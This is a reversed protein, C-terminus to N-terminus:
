AWAAMASPRSKWAPTASNASRCTRDGAPRSATLLLYGQGTGTILRSLRWAIKLPALLHRWAEVFEGDEGSHGLLPAERPGSGLQAHRWRGEALGEFPQLLSQAKREQRAGCAADRRGLGTFLEELRERRAELLDFLCDDRKALHALPGGACDADAGAFVGSMRDQ